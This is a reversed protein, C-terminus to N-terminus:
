VMWKKREKIEKMARILTGSIPYHVRQADVIVHEAEPYARAFYEGYSPESSYVYDSIIGGNICENVLNYMLLPYEMYLPFDSNHLDLQKIRFDVGLIEDDQERCIRLEDDGGTFMIVTVYDCQRSATDICYLHGRHLPLFKGGFFGYIM